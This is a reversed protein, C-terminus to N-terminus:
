PGDIKGTEINYRRLDIGMLAACNVPIPGDFIGGHIPIFDIQCVPCWCHHAWESWDPDPNGCQPCGAIEYEKPRQVYVWVRNEKGEDPM